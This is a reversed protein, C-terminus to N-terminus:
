VFFPRSSYIVREFDVKRIKTAKWSKSSLITDVRKWSREKSWLGLSSDFAHYLQDDCAMMTRQNPLLHAWGWPSVPGTKEKKRQLLRHTWWGSTVLQVIQLVKLPARRALTKLGDLVEKEFLKSTGIDMRLPQFNWHCEWWIHVLLMGVYVCPGVRDSPLALM